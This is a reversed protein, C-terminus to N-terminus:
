HSFRALCIGTPANEACLARGGSICSVVQVSDIPVPLHCQSEVYPYPEYDAMFAHKILVKHQGNAAECFEAVHRRQTPSQFSRGMLLVAFDRRYKAVSHTMTKVAKGGDRFAAIFCKDDPGEPALIIAGLAQGHLV